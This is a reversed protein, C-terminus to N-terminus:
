TTQNQTGSQASGTTDNAGTSGADTSGSSGSGTSGGGTSGGDAPNPAPQGNFTTVKSAMDTLASEITSSVNALASLQAPSAGKSQADIIAKQVAAEVIDPIHDILADVGDRVTQAEEAATQMRAILMDLDSQNASMRNLEEDVKRLISEADGSGGNHVHVHVHMSMTGIEIKLVDVIHM